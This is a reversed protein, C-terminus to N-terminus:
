RILTVNGKIMKSPTGNPLLTTYDIYYHYVGIGQPTGRLTGDWGDSTSTTEYVLEGYRNYLRLRYYQLPCVIGPTFRDNIGDGNPTFANPVALCNECPWVVRVYASGSTTGCYNSVTVAYQGTYTPSLCCTTDGTSWQYTTGYQPNGLVAPVDRCVTTDGGLLASPTAHLRFTDSHYLCDGTTLRWYLGPKTASISSTTAGTSWLYQTGVASGTLQVPYTTACFTTDSVHRSSDSIDMVCVDDIYVYCYVTSDDSHTADRVSFMFSDQMPEGDNFHGLTIWEEGGKATYTGEIKTWDSTDTIFKGPTNRITVPKTLQTIIVGPKIIVMTDSIYAGVKDTTIVTGYARSLASAALNVYFSIYYTHSGIMPSLLKAEMYERNERVSGSTRVYLYIGTYANGTRAPQYGITNAPVGHGFPITDCVHFYDPTSYISISAWNQVTPFYTYDESYAIHNPMGGPGAVWYPCDNYKEFDPNPVLNQCFAPTISLLMIGLILLLARMPQNTHHYLMFPPTHYNNNPHFNNNLGEEVYGGIVVM